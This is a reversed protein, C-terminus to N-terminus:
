RVQKKNEIFDMVRDWLSLFREKLSINGEVLLRGESYLRAIEISHELEMLIPLGEERCYKHIRDDGIDSRNIVVGAPIGLEKTVEVALVLDNLGFPTPETVLIAFDTDKLTTVAPCSTGPPADLIWLSHSNAANKVKRILPPSTAVGVNIKGQILTINHAQYVEISGIERPIERIADQPCVRICGGCSHCLEYFLLPVKEIVAIAKYECFESCKRCGDCKDEEVQPVPVTAKEKKVLTGKLFLNVNPEEVDCDLLAVDRGIVRALNVAVTTKGTGGKGSAVCIKM